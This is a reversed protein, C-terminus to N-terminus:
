SEIFQIGRNNYWLIFFTWFIFSSGQNGLVQNNASFYFIMIFFLPLLIIALPNHLLFADLWIQALFFAVLFVFVIVGFFTLDNALWVYITHWKGRDSYGYKEEIRYQYTRKLITEQGYYKEFLSATFDNHGVGYTFQHDLSLALGMAYYGQTVYNDISIYSDELAEPIFRLIGTNREVLIETSSEYDFNQKKRGKNGITFYFIGIFLIVGSIFFYKKKKFSFRKLYFIEPKAAIMIIPLLIIFDFIGKNTGIVIFSLIDFLVIIVYSIKQLFNLKKWYFLGIPYIFYLFPLALFYTLVLPNSLTLYGTYEAEHKLAYAISPSFLGIGISSLLESLSLSTVKLQFLFKPYIFILNAIISYNILKRINYSKKRGKVRYKQYGYKYGFYFAILFAINLSFFTFPNDLPWRWPSSIFMLLTIVLFTLLIKRPFYVTRPSVKHLKNHM